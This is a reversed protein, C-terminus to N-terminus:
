PNALTGIYLSFGEQVSQGAQRLAQRFEVSRLDMGKKQCLSAAQAAVAADFKSLARVVAEPDTGTTEIIRQAYQRASTFKGDGDADLWVPNTAGLIRPTWKPSSPQYPRPIEWHPSTVGPGTAM